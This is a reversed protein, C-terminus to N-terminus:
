GTTNYSAISSIIHKGEYNTTTNAETKQDEPLFFTGTARQNVNAGSEMLRKVMDFEGYVIAIHLASEGLVFVITNYTALM